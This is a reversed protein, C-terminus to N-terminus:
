EVPLWTLWSFCPLGAQEVAWITGDQVPAVAFPEWVGEHYFDGATDTCSIGGLLYLAVWTGDELDGAPIRADFTGPFPDEPGGNWIDGEPSFAYFGAAGALYDPLCQVAGPDDVWAVGPTVTAYEFTFDYYPYVDIELGDDFVLTKMSTQDNSDGEPVEAVPTAPHLVFSWPIELTTTDSILDVNCYNTSWNEGPRLVRMSVGAACAHDDAPVGITFAGQADVEQPQLCGLGGDAAKRICAQAKAGLVPAGAPDVISGTITQISLGGPCGAPDNEQLAAVPPDHHPLDPALTWDIGTDGGGTDGTDGGGTDGTDGGGTDGTDGGGDGAGGGDDGCSSLALTVSFLLCLLTRVAM